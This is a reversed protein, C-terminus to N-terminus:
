ASPRALDPTVAPPRVHSRLRLRQFNSRQRSNLDIVIADIWRLWREQLGVRSWDLSYQSVHNTCTKDAVEVVAGPAPSPEALPKPTSFSTTAKDFYAIWDLDTRFEKGANSDYSPLIVLNRQFDIASRLNAALPYRQALFAALADFFRESELCIEVLLWRAPDVLDPYAPLQEIELYDIADEDQLLAEYHAVLRRYCEATPSAVACFEEIVAQYFAAYSVGHTLRLYIAVLQTLSCNHL